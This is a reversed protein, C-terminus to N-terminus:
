IARIKSLWENASSVYNNDVDFGLGIMNTKECAILTSGIGVFPDIVLSQPAIASLKICMEPLAVPFIAPHNHKDKQNQITEYPIFWCNGRCRIPESHNFRKVNSEWKLLTGVSLRNINVKGTKTLHFIFEHTHNLFRDSNIPKFQGYSMPRTNKFLTGPEDTKDITINKVWVIENQLVFGVELAKELIHWPILPSTATGGVQLFFHGENSLVRFIEKWVSGLWNLFEDYQKNDCYSGYKINLNYPPSTIITSASGNAIDKLGALCDINVAKTKLVNM